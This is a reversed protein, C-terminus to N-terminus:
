LGGAIREFQIASEHPMYRLIQPYCGFEKLKRAVVNVRVINLRCVSPIPNFMDGTTEYMSGYCQTGCLRNIECKYCLPLKNPAFSYVATALEVNKSKVYCTKEDPFSLQATELHPYMTRHCPFMKLDALRLMFFKQITCAAEQTDTLIAAKITNFGSGELSKNHPITKAGLQELFKEKNHEVKDWLWDMLFELFDEYDRINEDTWNPDRVELLYLQWWKMNYKEYMKQFWLFNEKWKKVSSPAIMPHPGFDHKAMFAFCREYWEEDRVTQNRTPRTDQDLILGDISASLYFSIGINKYRKILKEMREITEQTDIFSYNTPIGVGAPKRYNPHEEYFQAIDNCIDWGLEQAFLEGSFLDIAPHYGNEGMWTLVKQLNARIVDPKVLSHDFMEERHKTIYCYECKLNCIPSIIFEINTRPHETLWDECFISDLLTAHLHSNMEEFELIAKNEPICAKISKM